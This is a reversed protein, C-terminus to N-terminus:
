LALWSHIQNLFKVWCMQLFQPRVELLSTGVMSYSSLVVQIAGNLSPNIMPSLVLCIDGFNKESMIKLFLTADVDLFNLGTVVKRIPKSFCKRCRFKFLHYSVNSHPAELFDLSTSILPLQFCITSKEKAINKGSPKRLLTKLSAITEM